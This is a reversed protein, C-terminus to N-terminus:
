ALLHQGNTSVDDALHFGNLNTQGILWVVDFGAAFFHKSTIFSTETEKGFGIKRM